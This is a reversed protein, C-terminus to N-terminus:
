SDIFQLHSRFDQVFFLLAEKAKRIVHIKIMNCLLRQFNITLLCQAMKCVEILREGETLRVSPYTGFTDALYFIRQIANRVIAWRCTSALILQREPSIRHHVKRTRREHVTSSWIQKTSLEGGRCEAINDDYDDDDTSPPELVNYDPPPNQENSLVNSYAGSFDYIFSLTKLRRKKELWKVVVLHSKM